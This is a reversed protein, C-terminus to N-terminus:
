PIPQCVGPLAVAGGPRHREVEMVLIVAKATLLSAPLGELDITLEGFPSLGQGMTETPPLRTLANVDLGSSVRLSLSTQRAVTAYALVGAGTPFLLRQDVLAPVRINQSTVDSDDEMVFYLGARHIVPAHDGCDLSGVSVHEGYLDEPTVKLTWVKQAPKGWPDIFSRAVHWATAVCTGLSKCEPPAGAGAPQPFAVAVTTLGDSSLGVSANTLATHVRNALALVAVVMAERDATIDLNRLVSLEGAADVRLQAAAAPYRLELIPPVYSELVQLLDGLAVELEKEGLAQARWRPVLALLRSQGGAAALEADLHELDLLLAQEQRKLEFTRAARELSALERDLFAGFFGRVGPPLDDLPMGAREELRAWASSRLATIEGPLLAGQALIEARMERISYAPQGPASQGVLVDNMAAGLAQAMAGLNRAKFMEVTLADARVQCPSPAGEPFTRDNVVVHAVVDQPAIVVGQRHMVVVDVVAGTVADTLVLLLAGAPAEDYPTERLRLGGSMSASSRSEEGDTETDTDAAKYGIGACAQFTVKSGNGLVELGTSAELCMQANAFFSTENVESSSEAVYNTDAWSIRYGEPGTMADKQSALGHYGGPGALATKQLACTPAWEGGISWRLQEGRALAQHRVGIVAPDAAGEIWAANRASVVLPPLVDRAVLMDADFVGREVLGVFTALADAYRLQEQSERAEMGRLDAGLHLLDLQIREIRRLLSEQANLGSIHALVDNVLQVKNNQFVSLRTQLTAIRDALLHRVDDKKQMGSHLVREGAGTTTGTAFAQNHRGTAEGVVGHLKTTWPTPAVALMLAVPVTAGTATWAAALRDHRAHLATLAAHLAPHKSKLQTTTTLATGLGAQDPLLALLRWTQLSPDTLAAGACSQYRCALDHGTAVTDLRDRLATLADGLLMLLPPSDLTGAPAFLAAIVAVDVARDATTLAELTAGATSGDVSAPLTLRAAYARKWFSGVVQSSQGELWTPDPALPAIADYWSALTALALDLGVPPADSTAGPEIQAAFARAMLRQHVDAASAIAADRCAGPLADVDALLAICGGLQALVSADPVHPETLADCAALAGDLAPDCPVDALLTACIPAAADAHYLHRITARQAPTVLDGHLEFFLKHRAVIADEFAAPDPLGAPPTALKAQLCTLKDAGALHDCTLCEAATLDTGLSALTQGPPSIVDNVPPCHDCTNWGDQGCYPVSTGWRPQPDNTVRLHCAETFITDTIKVKSNNVVTVKKVTAPAADVAVAVAAAYGPPRFQAPVKAEIAAEKGPVYGGCWAAATNPFPPDCETICGKEAGVKQCQETCARTRTAEVVVKPAAYDVGIGWHQCTAGKPGCDPHAETCDHDYSYRWPGDCTTAPSSLGDEDCSPSTWTPTALADDREAVAENGDDAGPPADDAHGCATFLLAAVLAASWRSGAHM